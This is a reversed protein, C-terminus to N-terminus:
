PYTCLNCYCCETMDIDFRTVVMAKRTGNSTIGVHGVEKIDKGREPVKITDIRICDVPCARECKLCGICDDMDVHLRSRIVNYNSHDFGINREPRPWKEEPYQLTVNNRRIRVMHMWTIGLGTMMTTISEWIDRFYKEM